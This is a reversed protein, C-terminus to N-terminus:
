IFVKPPVFSDKQCIQSTVIMRNHEAPIFHEYTWTCFECIVKAAASLVQRNFIEQFEETLHVSGPQFQPHQIHPTFIVARFNKWLHTRANELATNVKRRLLKFEEKKMGGRIGNSEDWAPIKVIMWKHSPLRRNFRVRVSRHDERLEQSAKEPWEKMFNKLDQIFETKINDEKYKGSNAIACAGVHLVSLEPINRGWTGIEGHKNELFREFTYGGQSYNDIFAGKAIRIRAADRINSQHCGTTAHPEISIHDHPVESVSNKIRDKSTYGDGLLAILRFNVQCSNLKDSKILRDLEHKQM